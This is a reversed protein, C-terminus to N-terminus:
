VHSSNLRTSKRDQILFNPTVFAVQLCAALAIPGLPCHPALYADFTEALAAIRRAETIGGCHSLDPQAVALGASLVPLFETRHYLREGCAIPISTLTVIDRLRHPSFEPLTLDSSCV